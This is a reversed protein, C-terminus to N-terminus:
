HGSPGVRPSGDVRLQRRRAGRGEGAGPWQEGAGQRQIQRQPRRGHVSDRHTAAPM